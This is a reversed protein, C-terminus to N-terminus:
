GGDNDGDGRGDGKRALGDGGLTDLPAGDDVLEGALVATVREAPHGVVDAVEVAVLNVVQDDGGVLVVGTQVVHSPRVHVRARGPQQQKRGDGARQGPFLKATVDFNGVFKKLPSQPAQARLSPGVLCLLLLLTRM